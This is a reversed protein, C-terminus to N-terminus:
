LLCKSEVPAQKLSRHLVQPLSQVQMKVMVCRLVGCFVGCLVDCSVCQVGCCFVACCM